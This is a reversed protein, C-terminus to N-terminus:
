DNRVCKTILVWFIIMISWTFFDLIQDMKDNDILKIPTNDLDPVSDSTYGLSYYSTFFVVNGNDVSDHNIIVMIDLVVPSTNPPLALYKFHIEPLQSYCKRPSETHEDDRLANFQDMNIRLSPLFFNPGCITCSDSKHGIMGFLECIIKQRVSLAAIVTQHSSTDTNVSSSTGLPHYIQDLSTLNTRNGIM